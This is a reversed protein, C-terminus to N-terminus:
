GGEAEVIANEVLECVVHAVAIHGEQIRPTEASPVRVCLDTQAALKGGSQGTLGITRLGLRRGAEVARLVDPSNGSTSIGILVDGPRGLAEVQRSFVVDFSYDNGLATLITTDTTLAIAPLARREKLFRGVLEGAIHQADAASGGNGCILVKRGDRLCAVILEAARAIVEAASEALAAKVRASEALRARALEAGRLASENGSM